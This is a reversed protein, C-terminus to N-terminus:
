MSLFTFVFPDSSWGKQHPIPENRSLNCKSHFSMGLFISVIQIICEKPILTTNSSMVGEEGRAQEGKEGERDNNVGVV